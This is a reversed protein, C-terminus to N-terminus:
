PVVKRTGDRDFSWVVGDLCDNGGKLTDSMEDFMSGCPCTKM